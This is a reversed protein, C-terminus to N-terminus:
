VMGLWAWASVTRVDVAGYWDEQNVGFLYHFYADQRCPCTDHLYYAHVIRYLPCASDAAVQRM